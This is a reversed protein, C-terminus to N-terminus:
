LLEKLGSVTLTNTIRKILTNRKAYCIVNFSVDKTNMRRLRVRKGDKALGVIFAPVIKTQRHVWYFKGKLM